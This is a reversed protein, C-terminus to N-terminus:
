PKTRDEQDTSDPRMSADPNVLAEKLKVEDFRAEEPEEFQWLMTGLTDDMQLPVLAAGLQQEIKPMDTSRQAAEMSAPIPPLQRGFSHSPYGPQSFGFSLDSSVDGDVGGYAIRDIDPSEWPPPLDAAWTM